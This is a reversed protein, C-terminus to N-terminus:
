KLVAQIFEEAGILTAIALPYAVFGIFLVAFDEFWGLMEAKHIAAREAALDDESFEDLANM